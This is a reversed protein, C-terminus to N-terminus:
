RLLQWVVRVAQRRNVIDAEAVWAVRARAVINHLQRREISRRLPNRGAPNVVAGCEPGALYDGAVEVPEERM